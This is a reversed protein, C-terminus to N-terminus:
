GKSHEVFSIRLNGYVHSSNQIMFDREHFHRFRVFAQGFPCEQITRYELGQRNRIFDDLVDKVSDLTIEGAPLSEITAIALDGNRGRLGGVVARTMVKRNPIMVTQAGPPMFPTPDVLRYSMASVPPIGDGSSSQVTAFPTKNSLSPPPLPPESPHQLNFSSLRVESQTSPRALQPRLLPHDQALSSPAATFLPLTQRAGDPSSHSLSSTELHQTVPPLAAFSSYVRPSTAAGHTLPKPFWAVTKTLSWSNANTQSSFIRDTSLGPFQPPFNYLSSIHGLHFCSTCRIRSRCAPRSHFNSLCRSCCRRGM